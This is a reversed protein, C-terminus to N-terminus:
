DCSTVIYVADGEQDRTVRVEVLDVSNTMPISSPKKNEIYELDVDNQSGMGIDEGKM